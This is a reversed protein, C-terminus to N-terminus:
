RIFSQYQVLYIQIRIFVIMKLLCYYVIAQNMQYASNDILYSDKVQRGLNDDDRDNGDNDPHSLDDNNPDEHDEDYFFERFDKLKGLRVNRASEYQHWEYGDHYFVKLNDLSIAFLKPGLLSITRFHIVNTAPCPPGQRFFENCQDPWSRAIGLATRTVGFDRDSEYTFACCPPESTM